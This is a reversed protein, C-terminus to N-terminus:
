RPVGAEALARTRGDHEKILRQVAKFLDTGAIGVLEFLAMEVTTVTAGARALRELAMERQWPDRSGVADAVVHVRYGANLLDHVTQSVCVHAEIGVVIMAPRSRFDAPLSEWGPAAVSSIELKEFIPADGDLAELVEPVTAGLGQPYQESGAILVGLERCGRTMLQIAAVMADFEHIHARFAEQVDVVFLGTSGTSLLDPHRESITKESEPPM